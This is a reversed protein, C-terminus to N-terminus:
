SGKMNQISTECLKAYNRRLRKLAKQIQSPPLHYYRIAGKLYNM